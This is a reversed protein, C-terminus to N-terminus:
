GLRSEDERPMRGACTDTDLHGGEKLFELGTPGPGVRTVEGQGVVDALAGRGFLAVGRPGSPSPKLTFKLPVCRGRVPNLSPYSSVGNNQTGSLM